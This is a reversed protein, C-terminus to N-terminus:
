NSHCPTKTKPGSGDGTHPRKTTNKVVSKSSGPQPEQEESVSPKPSSPPPNFKLDPIYPVNEPHETKILDCMKEYIEKRKTYVISDEFWHTLHPLPLLFSKLPKSFFSEVYQLLYIGCDYHNPQDPVVARYGPMENRTFTREVGKRVKHEVRIYERLTSYVRDRSENPMSDFTVICPQKVRPKSERVNTKPIFELNPISGEKRCDDSESETLGDEDTEFQMEGEPCGVEEDRDPDV